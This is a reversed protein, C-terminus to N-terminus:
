YDEPMLFTVYLYDIGEYDEPKDGVSFDAILYFKIGNYKFVQLHCKHEYTKKLLDLANFMLEATEEKFVYKFNQTCCIHECDFLGDEEAEQECLELEYKLM